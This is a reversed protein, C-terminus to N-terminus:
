TVGGKLARVTGNALSTAPPTVSLATSDSVQLVPTVESRVNSFRDTVRVQFSATDGAGFLTLVAPSLVVYAPPAPTITVPVMLPTALGDATATLQDTGVTTRYTVTTRALGASDTTASFPAFVFGTGGSTQSFQVRLNPVGRGSITEVRVVFDGADSGAEATTKPSTVVVVRAPLNAYQSSESKPESASGGCAWTAVLVLLAARPRRRSCLSHMPSTVVPPRAAMPERGYYGSVARGAM